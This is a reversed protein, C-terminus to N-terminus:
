VPGLHLRVTGVVQGDKFAGIITNEADMPEEIRKRDHDAYREQRNMEEVYVRYRFRYVAELEEPTTAIRVDIARNTNAASSTAAAEKPYASYRGRCRYGAKAASHDKNMPMAENKTNISIM